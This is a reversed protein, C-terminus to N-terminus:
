PIACLLTITTHGNVLKAMTFEIQKREIFDNLLDALM